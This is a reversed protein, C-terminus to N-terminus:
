CGEEMKDVRQKHRGGEFEAKLFSEVCAYAEKEEIFRAPLSLVNADNHQRALAALEPKWCVASRIGKHKNAAISIGNGSGCVLIGLVSPDGQIDKAVVHAFDPYDAREESFCGRDTTQIGMSSLLARIKEKLAFGAHDSGISIKNNKM